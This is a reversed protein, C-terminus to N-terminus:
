FQNLPDVLATNSLKNRVLVDLLMNLFFVDLLM